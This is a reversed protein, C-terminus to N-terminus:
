VPAGVSKRYPLPLSSWDFEDKFDGCHYDRPTVPHGPEAPADFVVSMGVSAWRDASSMSPAHRRCEGMRSTLHAWWDCGSCCPGHSWYFRDVAAQMETM